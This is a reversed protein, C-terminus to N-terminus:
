IAWVTDCYFEYLGDGGYFAKARDAEKLNIQYYGAALDLLLSFVKAGQLKTL